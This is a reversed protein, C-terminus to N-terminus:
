ADVLEASMPHLGPAALPNKLPCMTAERMVFPTGRYVAFKV